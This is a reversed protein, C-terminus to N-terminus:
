YMNYKITEIVENNIGADQSIESFSNIQSMHPMCEKLSLM